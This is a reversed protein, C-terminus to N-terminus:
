NCRDLDSGLDPADDLDKETPEATAMGTLFLGTFTSVTLDSPFLLVAVCLPLIDCLYGIKASPTFFCLPDTFDAETLDAFDGAPDM